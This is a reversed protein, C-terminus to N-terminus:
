SGSDKRSPTPREAAPSTSAANERTVSRGRHTQHRRAPGFPRSSCGDHEDGESEAGIREMHGVDMRILLPHGAHRQAGDEISAPLGAGGEPWRPRVRRAVEIRQADRVQRRVAGTLHDAPVLMAAIEHGCEDHVREAEQEGTPEEGANEADRRYTEGHAERLRQETWARSEDGSSEESRPQQVDPLRM